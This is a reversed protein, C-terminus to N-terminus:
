QTTKGSGTEGQAVVVQNERLLAIFADRVQAVPLRARQEQISQRSFDTAGSWSKGEIKDAFTSEKRLATKELTSLALQLQDQETKNKSEAIKRRLIMMELAEQTVSAPDIQPTSQPDEESALEKAQARKSRLDRFERLKPSGAKANRAFACTEDKVPYVIEQRKGVANWTNLFPAKVGTTAKLVVSVDDDLAVDPGSSGGQVGARRMLDSEHWKNDDDREKMRQTYRPDKRRWAPDGALKEQKKAYFDVCAANGFAEPDVLNHADGEEDDSQVDPVERTPPQLRPISTPAQPIAVTNLQQQQQQEQRPEDPSDSRLRKSM